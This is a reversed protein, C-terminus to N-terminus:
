SASGDSAAASLAKLHAMEEPTFTIGATPGDGVRGLFDFGEAAVVLAVYRRLLDAHNIPTPEPICDQLAGWYDCEARANSVVSPTVHDPLEDPAPAGREASASAVWGWKWAEAIAAALFRPTADHEAM